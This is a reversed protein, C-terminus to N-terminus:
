PYLFGIFSGSALFTLGTGDYKVSLISANEWNIGRVELALTQTDLWGIPLVWGIESLRSIDILSTDPIETLINGELTAIRITEHFTPPQDALSGSAEKWAVYQNDPSFVADGSGRDNDAMLPFTIATSFDFNHVISLPGTGGTKNYAMWTQDDSIGIPSKSLDLYTKIQNDSLDLYNLTRTPEFIIDGGIGYPVTTYWIGIAQDNETAIALPKIAYSQSNTSNLIPNATALTQIDGLYVLSQLGIDSYEIQSYVILPKGPIGYLSYLNPSAKVLSLENNNNLWLEGGNDFVYYVLPPILPGPSLTLPGAIHVQRLSGTGLNPAQLEGIQQGQLDYYVVRGGDLSYTAFGVPLYLNPSIPMTSPTDTPAPLSTITPEIVPILSPTPPTFTPSTQTLTPTASTSPLACSSLGVLLTTLFLIVIARSIAM